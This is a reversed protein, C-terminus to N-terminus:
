ELAFIVSITVGAEEQGPEIPTSPSAASVSGSGGATARFATPPPPSSTTESIYLVKGLKRGSLRAYDEAKTKAAAMAAERAAKLLATNEELEFSVGSAVVDDGGAEVASGIIDGAKGIDTIKASLSNSAWYGSIKASGGSYDFRPYVSVWKTQIDKPKVGGAKLASVIKQVGENAASVAERVNARRVSVGVNLHLVDPVSFVRGKGVVAVTDKAQLRSIEAEKASLSGRLEDVRAQAASLEPKLSELSALRAEATARVKAKELNAQEAHNSRESARVALTVISLFTTTVIAGVLVRNRWM